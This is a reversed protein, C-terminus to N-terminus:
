EEFKIILDSYKRLQSVINFERTVVKQRFEDYENEKNRLKRFSETQKPNGELFVAIDGFNEKKLYGSYLGEIILYEVEETNITLHEVIDAYRHVRQIRIPKKNKFDICIRKLEEWDIESLGVSEIGIKKRNITRITPHCIYFDDLSLCISQKKQKFLLEQLCDSTESKQSGSIGYILIINEDKLKNNIIKANKYSKETILLRDNIM